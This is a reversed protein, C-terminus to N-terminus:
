NKKKKKPLDKVKKTAKKKTTMAKSIQVWYKVMENEIKEYKIFSEIIDKFTPRIMTENKKNQNLLYTLRAIVTALTFM